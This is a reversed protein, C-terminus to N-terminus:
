VNAVLTNPPLSSMLLEALRTGSTVKVGSGDCHTLWTSHPECAIELLRLREADPMPETGKSRIHAARTIGIIGRM